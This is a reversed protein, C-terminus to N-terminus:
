CDQVVLHGIIGAAEHKTRLLNTLSSPIPEGDATLSEILESDLALVANSQYLTYLTGWTAYASSASALSPVSSSSSSSPHLLQQLHDAYSLPIPTTGLARGTSFQYRRKYDCISRLNCGIIYDVQGPYNKSVISIATTYTCLPLYLIIHDACDPRAPLPLPLYVQVFV